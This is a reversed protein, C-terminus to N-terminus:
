SAARMWPWVCMMESTSNPVIGPFEVLDIKTTHLFSGAQGPQTCRSARLFAHSFVTLAVHACALNLVFVFTPFGSELGVPTLWLNTPPMSVTTGGSRLNGNRVNLNPVLSSVCCSLWLAISPTVRPSAAPTCLIALAASRARASTTNLM